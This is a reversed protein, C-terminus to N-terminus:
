FLGRAEASLTACPNSGILHCPRFACPPNPEQGSGTMFSYDFVHMEAAETEAQMLNQLKKSHGTQFLGFGSLQDELAADGEELFVMGLEDAKESLEERRLQARKRSALVIMIVLLTAAVVAGVVIVVPLM